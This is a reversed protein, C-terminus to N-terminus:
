YYSAASWAGYTSNSDYNYGKKLLDNTYSGGSKFESLKLGTAHGDAYSVNMYGAPNYQYTQSGTSAPLNGARNKLGGTKGPTGHRSAMQFPIDFGVDVIMGNDAIHLATAASTLSSLRRTQTTSFAPSGVLLGNVAYHGNGFKDERWNGVKVDESPCVMPKCEGYDVFCSWVMQQYVPKKGTMLTYTMSGWIEDWDPWVGNSADRKHLPMLFDDNDNSYMQHMLALTKINNLCSTSRAKERAKGLAPLLMSALIAIIAIVVLLEILTFHRELPFSKNKM